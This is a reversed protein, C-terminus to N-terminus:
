KVHRPRAYVGVSPLQHARSRPAGTLHRFAKLRIALHICQFLSCIWTQRGTPKALDFDHQYQVRWFAIAM